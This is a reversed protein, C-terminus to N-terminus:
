RVNKKDFDQQLRKLPKNQAHKLKSDHKVWNQATNKQPSNGGPTYKHHSVDKNKADRYGKKLYAEASSRGQNSQGAAWAARGRESSSAPTPWKRQKHLLCSKIENPETIVTAQHLEQLTHM